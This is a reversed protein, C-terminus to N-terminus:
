CAATPYATEENSIRKYQKIATYISRKEIKAGKYSIFKM